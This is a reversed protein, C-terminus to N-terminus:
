TYQGIMDAHAALVAQAAAQGATKDTITPDLDVVKRVLARSRKLAAQVITDTVAATRLCLPLISEPLTVTQPHPGAANVTAPTEVFVGHPLNPIQGRNVLNLSHLTIPKGLLMGAILDGPCEWAIHLKSFPLKGAGVDSLLQMREARERADGHWPDHQPPLSPPPPLFDQVHTDGSSLLYGTQRLLSESNPQGITQGAALRQRLDPLLDRGTMADQAQIIWTFHNLGAITTKYLNGLNAYGDFSGTARQGTLLHHLMGYGVVSVWCFGATSVGLAEAAQCVRPLPNSSMLLWAKPCLRRMDAVVQEIFAIQRLSYSLGAVGGFETILHQPYHQQIIQRDIAHRKHMQPAAACIVFDAGALAAARDTHATVRIPRHLDAALREAVATMRDLVDADVDMLALEGAGLDHDRVVGAITTPGFVFSGAGLGAVKWTSM